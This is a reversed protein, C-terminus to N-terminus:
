LEDEEDPVQVYDYFFMNPFEDNGGSNYIIHNTYLMLIESRKDRRGLLPIRWLRNISTRQRKRSEDWAEKTKFEQFNEWANSLDIIFKM